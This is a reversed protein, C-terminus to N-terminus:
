SMVLVKDRLVFFIEGLFFCVCIFWGGVEEAGVGTESDSVSGGGCGMYLYWKQVWGFVRSRLPWPEECVWCVKRWRWKWKDGPIFMCKKKNMRKMVSQAQKTTATRKARRERFVCIERRHLGIWIRESVMGRQKWANREYRIWNKEEIFALPYLLEVIRELGDIGLDSVYDFEFFCTLPLHIWTENYYLAKSQLKSQYIANGIKHM